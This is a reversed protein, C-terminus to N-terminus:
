GDVDREKLAVDADCYKLRTQAMNGLTDFSIGSKKLLSWFCCFIVGLLIKGEDSTFDAALVSSL